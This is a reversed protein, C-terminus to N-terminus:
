LERVRRAFPAFGHPCREQLTDTDAAKAVAEYMETQTLTKASKQLLRACLEKPNRIAEPESQRSVTYGLATTLAQEDALMWADFSRVAVGLARRSLGLVSGM